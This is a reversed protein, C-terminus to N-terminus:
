GVSRLHRARRWASRPSLLAPGRPCRRISCCSLRAPRSDALRVIARASPGVGVKNCRVKCLHTYFGLRATEALGNKKNQTEPRSGGFVRRDVVGRRRLRHRAGSGGAADRLKVQVGDHRVLAPRRVRETRGAARLGVSLMAAAVLYRAYCRLGRALGHALRMTRMTPPPRQPEHLARACACRASRIRLNSLNSRPM